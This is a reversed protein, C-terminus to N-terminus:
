EHMLTLTHELVAEWGNWHKYGGITENHWIFRFTGGCRKVEEYLATIRAKAEQPNLSLYENLTGDMYVFPHIMLESVSNITLDFWRVSRATGIRFGTEAAFGMSYEHQIGSEILTHYTHPLSFRLFHQRSSVVPERTIQELREKEKSVIEPHGFSGYSPHLGVRAKKKMSQILDKHAPLNIDLNRDFRGHSEMLWFLQVSYEEAVESIVDYTSYPDKDGKKVRRREELREKDGKLRDRLISLKRRVGKKYLYAFANDIDFTPEFEIIPEPLERGAMVGIIHQSWRDCIAMNILGYKFLISEKVPFRGHEDKKESDYEEMRSLVYFVSAFHDPKEEFLLVLKNVDFEPIEHSITEDYLLSSALGNRTYDIDHAEDEKVLTYDLGREKFIFDCTYVIRPTSKDVKIKINEAM